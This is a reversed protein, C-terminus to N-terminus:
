SAAPVPDLLNKSMSKPEVFSVERRRRLYFFLASRMKKSEKSKRVWWCTRATVARSDNGEERKELARAHTM